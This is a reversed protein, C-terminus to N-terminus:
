SVAPIDRKVYLAYSGVVSILIVAVSVLVLPVDYSQRQLIYTPDFHKFPTIKELANTGLLDGFVSLVYMGFGLGMAYPIVSRIRKVLLSVALGVSLFFLQFVVISSLLLVLPMIVPCISASERPSRDTCGASISPDTPKIKAGRPLSRRTRMNVNAFSVIVRMSAVPSGARM